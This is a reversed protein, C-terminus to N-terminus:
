SPWWPSRERMRAQDRSVVGAYSKGPYWPMSGIQDFGPISELHRRMRERLDPDPLTGRMAAVNELLHDPNSTAPLVVTVAPNSIVWKLFYEAWSQVGLDEAFAPLRHGEVVAHLRGKELPMNVLVAVGREAAAPLVRKEAARTHISYHIQVFDLDGRDIWDAVLDFYGPDHHSVGLHRIRGEQKWAHFLPIMVDVNVLSHCQLVDMPERRRLRRMSRRRSAEAHSDDWLHEGTSWIKDTVFMQDSIGLPAAFDGLNQEASGYLPSTDFVRGGERWFRRVVERLRGRPQGALTDFTMFTGLGVTPLQGGPVERTILNAPAAAHATGPVGEAPILSAVAGLGTAALVRRRAPRASAAADHDPM